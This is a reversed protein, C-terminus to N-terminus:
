SHSTTQFIVAFQMASVVQSRPARILRIPMIRASHIARMLEAHGPVYFLKYMVRSLSLRRGKNSNDGCKSCPSTPKGGAARCQTRTHSVLGIGNLACHRCFRGFLDKVAASEASNQSAFAASIMERIRGANQPQMMSRLNAIIERQKDEVARAFEPTM